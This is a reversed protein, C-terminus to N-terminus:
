VIPVVKRIRPENNRFEPITSRRFSTILTTQRSIQANCRSNSGLGGGASGRSWWSSTPPMTRLRTGPAFVLLSGGSTVLLTLGSLGLFSPSDVSESCPSSSSSESISLNKCSADSDGESVLESLSPFGFAPAWLASAFDHLRTSAGVLLTETSISAQQIKRIGTMYWSKM